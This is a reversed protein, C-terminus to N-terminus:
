ISLSFWPEATDYWVATCLVLWATRDGQFNFCWHSWIAWFVTLKLVSGITKGLHNM